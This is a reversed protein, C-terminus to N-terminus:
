RSNHAQLLPLEVLKTLVVASNSLVNILEVLQSTICWLIHISICFPLFSKQISQIILWSNLQRHNVDWVILCKQVLSCDQLVFLILHLTALPLGVVMSLEVRSWRVLEAVNM